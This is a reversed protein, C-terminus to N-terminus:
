EFDDNQEKVDESIVEIKIEEEIMEEDDETVAEIEGEILNEEIM